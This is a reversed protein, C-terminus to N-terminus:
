DTQESDIGLGGGRCFEKAEEFAKQERIIEKVEFGSDVAPYAVYGVLDADPHDPEYAYKVRADRKVTCGRSNCRVIQIRYPGGEPTRTTNKNQLNSSHIAIAIDASKMRECAAHVAPPCAKALGELGFIIVFAIM